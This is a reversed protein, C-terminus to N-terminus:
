GSMGGGQGEREGSAKGGGAKASSQMRIICELRVGWERDCSQQVACRRVRDCLRSAAAGAWTAAAGVAVAARRRISGAASAPRRACLAACCCVHLMSCCCAVLASRRCILPHSPRFHRLAHSAPCRFSRAHATGRFPAPRKAQREKILGDAQRSIRCRSTRSCAAHSSAHANSPLMAGVARTLTAEAPPIPLGTRSPM